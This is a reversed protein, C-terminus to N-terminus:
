VEPSPTTVIEAGGSESSRSSRLQNQSSARTISRAASCYLFSCYVDKQLTRILQIPNDTEAGTVLLSVDKRRAVEEVIAGLRDPGNNQHVECDKLSDPLAPNLFDLSEALIGNLIVIVKSPYVACIRKVWKVALRDNVSGTYSLIITKAESGFDHRCSFVGVHGKARRLLATILEEGQNTQDFGILTVDEQKNNVYHILEGAFDAACLYKLTLSESFYQARQYAPGLVEDGRLFKQKQMGLDGYESDPSVLKALTVRLLQRKATPKRQILCHTITMMPPALYPTRPLVFVNYTPSVRAVKQKRSRKIKFILRVLPTTILTALLSYVVFMAFLEATLIGADLAVNLMVLAVLGKCALLVGYAIADYWSLKFAKAVLMVSCGKAIFAAPVFLISIGWASGSSILTLDTRLGSFALYVPLLIVVVVDELKEKVLRATPGKRPVLLGVLFSGILGSIGIMETLYAVGFSIFVMAFFMLPEVRGKRDIRASILIVIRRVLFWLFLCLAITSLIIWIYSYRTTVTDGAAHISIIVALLVWCNCTDFATTCMTYIGLNTHILNIEGLIRALLALASISFVLGIFLIRVAMSSTTYKPDDILYSLPVAMVIPVAIGVVSATISRGANKVLKKPDLNLGVILLFLVLALQAISQLNNMSAAPFIQNTFGPIQGLVTPGLVIGSVIESVVVPQGLRVLALHIVKPLGIILFLQIMLQGVFDQFTPTPQFFTM